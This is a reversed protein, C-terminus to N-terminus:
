WYFTMKVKVKKILGLLSLFTSRSLAGENLKVQSAIYADRTITRPLQQVALVKTIKLLKTYHM